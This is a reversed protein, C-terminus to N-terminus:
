EVLAKPKRTHEPAGMSDSLPSDAIYLSRLVVLCVLCVRIDPHFLHRRRRSILRKQFEFSYNELMIAHRRVHKGVAILLANLTM